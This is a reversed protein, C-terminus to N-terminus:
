LNINNALDVGALPIRTYCGEEGRSFLFPYHLSMYRPSHQSIHQLRGTNRNQIVIDTEFPEDDDEPRVIIVAIEDVAPRNYHRPDNEQPNLM